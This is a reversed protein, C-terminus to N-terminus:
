VYMRIVNGFARVECNTKSIKPVTACSWEWNEYCLSIAAMESYPAFGFHFM